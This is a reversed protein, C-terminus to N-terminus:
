QEIMPQNPGGGGWHHGHVFASWHHECQTTDKRRTKAWLDDAGVQRLQPIQVQLASRIPVRGEAVAAFVHVAVAEPFGAVPRWMQRVPLVVDPLSLALAM